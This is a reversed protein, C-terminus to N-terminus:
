VPKLSAAAYANSTRECWIVLSRYRTPDLSTPVAFNLSGATVDLAAITASRAQSVDATTTPAEVPSMQIELDSNATVFFDELRLAYTTDALRYLTATGSGVQDVRHFSGRAVAVSGPEAMAALPPEHLPVDVEQDVQLQWPGDAVVELSLSGTRSGYGTGTGNCAADVVARGQGPARVLLHGASCTWRGRWQIAGADVTFPATTMSAQGALSGVEQWWPQSRLVTEGAVAPPALTAPVPAARARSAAPARSPPTESGLFRERVGLVNGGFLASAVLAILGLASLVRSAVSRPSGSVGPATAEPEAGTGSGM